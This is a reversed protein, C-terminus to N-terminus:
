HTSKQSQSCDIIAIQFCVGSVLEDNEQYALDEQPKLSAPAMTTIDVIFRPRYMGWQQHWPKGWISDPKLATQSLDWAM